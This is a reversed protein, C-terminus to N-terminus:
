LTEKKLIICPIGTLGAAIESFSSWCSGIIKKTASLVLMEALADQIGEARHREASFRHTRIRDGFRQCLAQKDEPSDSAVYFNASPDAAIEREIQGIFLSLPSLAISQANDTRRIHVGITHGDFGSTVEDARRRIAETPVFFNKLVEPQYPYFASYSAVYLHKGGPLWVRAWLEFDFNKDMLEPIQLEYLCEDFLFQQMLRPFRLNRRRPRDYRFLDMRTAERVEVHPVTEAPHCFLQDFRCNLGKDKFWVVRLEHGTQKALTLASAITRIRNALGGVPILTIM